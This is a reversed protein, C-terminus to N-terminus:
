EGGGEGTAEKDGQPAEDRPQEADRGEDEAAASSEEVGADQADAEGDDAKDGEEVGYARLKRKLAPELGQLRSEIRQVSRSLATVRSRCQLLKKRYVDVAAENGELSHKSFGSDPRTPTFRADPLLPCAAAVPESERKLLADVQQEADRQLAAYEDLAAKHSECAERFETALASAVEAQTM